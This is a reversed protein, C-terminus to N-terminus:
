GSFAAPDDSLVYVWMCRCRPGGACEPNPPSESEYEPSDVELLQGNDAQQCDDCTSQDLCSTYYAGAIQGKNQSAADARGENLALTAVKQAQDKLAAEAAAMGAANLTTATANPNLAANEVTSAVHRAANRAAVQAGQRARRRRVLLVGATAEPVHAMTVVRGTGLRSHQDTLERVVTEHGTQYLHDLEGELAEVLAQPPDDPAARKTSARQVVQGVFDKLPASGAQQFRDKADDLAQKIQGQSLLSEYWAPDGKDYTATPKKSGQVIPDKNNGKTPEANKAQQQGQQLGSDLNGQHPEPKGQYGPGSASGPKGPNQGKMPAGQPGEGLEQERPSPAELAAQMGAKRAAEKEERIEPNAAPFGARNRLYDELEPDAEMAGATILGQAYTAIESLSAEDEITMTLKPFGEVNPYNLMVIKQVLKNLEEIPVEALAKVASLFPDEQVEATARAGVQHHGLAMFDGLVSSGIAEKHYRLSDQIGSGSSSDFTIVDVMWGKGDNESFASVHPGPLIAYAAEATHMGALMNEVEGKTVEDMGEPPYVIPVGVAKREQGIADIRELRDKLYWNKYAARLLSRGEWNDGEAQIRYYTLYSADLTAMKANPLIQVIESLEGFEDQYWKWISRPLRLDLKRPVQVLKGKWELATWIQEFALFGSRLLLPGAEVLHGPLAPSMAEWLAWKCLEAADKDEQKAEDGGYPDIDWVAGAIPAWCMLILRRIDSDSWYMEEFKYLGARGALSLNLEDLEILGNFHARGSGGQPSTNAAPSKKPALLTRLNLPKAM